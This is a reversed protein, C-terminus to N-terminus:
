GNSLVTIVHKVATISHHLGQDMKADGGFVPQSKQRSPILLDM